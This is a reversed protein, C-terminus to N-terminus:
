GVLRGNMMNMMMGCLEYDDADDFRVWLFAFSFPPLLQQQQEHEHQKNKAWTRFRFLFFYFIILLYSSPPLLLCSLDRM